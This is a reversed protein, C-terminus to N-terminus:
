HLISRRASSSSGCTGTRIFGEAMSSAKDVAPKGARRLVTKDDEERSLLGETFNTKSQMTTTATSFHFANNPKGLAADKGRGLKYRQRWPRTSINM